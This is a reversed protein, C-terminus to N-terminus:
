KHRRGAARPSAKVYVRGMSKSGVQNDRRASSAGSAQPGAAWGGVVVWEAVM